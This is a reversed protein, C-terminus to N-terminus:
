RYKLFSGYRVAKQFPFFHSLKQDNYAGSYFLFGEYYSIPTAYFTFNKAQIILDM